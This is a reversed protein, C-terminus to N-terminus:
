AKGKKKDLLLETYTIGWLLWLGGLLFGGLVDSFYHVELYMRSFGIGLIILAGLFIVRFRKKWSSLLKCILYTLYGYMAMAVASHGSPFSPSKEIYYAIDSAPRARNIFLKIFYMTAENGILVYVYPLIFLKKNKVYLLSITILSLTLVTFWQGLYTINLFLKIFTLSRHVFLYDSISTDLKVIPELGVVSEALGFFIGLGILFIITLLTLPLGVFSKRSFRSVLFDYLSPFSKKFNKILNSESIRKKFFHSITKTYEFIAKSKKIIVWVITVIILILVLLGAIKNISRDVQGIIGGFFYGLLVHSAAWVFGSLVNWLLFKQIDMKVAGAIFPVTARLPGIFRAFFVSRNGYKDFFTRGKDLHSLKLFKNSDKFAKSKAYGLYYGLSDGIVAGAASFWILDGVDMHGHFAAFGALTVVTAGPVITGIFALGEAISFILVILYGFHGLHDFNPLLHLYHHM